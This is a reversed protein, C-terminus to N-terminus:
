TYHVSDTFDITYHSMNVHMSCWHIVYFVRIDILIFDNDEDDYHELWLDFEHERASQMYVIPTLVAIVM